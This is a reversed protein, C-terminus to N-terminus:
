FRKWDKPTAGAEIESRWKSIRDKGSTWFLECRELYQLVSEIEKREFLEKALAMKPGFSGLVASGSVSASRALHIKAQKIDGNKLAVRGLITHAEHKCESVASKRRCLPSTLLLLRSYKRADDLQEAEFALEPVPKLTEPDFPKYNKKSLQYIRKKEALALTACRSEDIGDVGLEYLHALTESWEANNPELLKGRLLLGQAIQSDELLLYRAANMLIPGDTKHTECHNLWIQKGRQYVEDTEKWPELNCERAASTHPFNEIVWLAHEQFKKRDRKSYFGLLLCRARFNNQDEILMQETELVKDDKLDLGQTTYIAPAIKAFSEAMRKKQSAIEKELYTIALSCAKRVVITGVVAGVAIGIIKQWARLAAEGCTEDFKDYM